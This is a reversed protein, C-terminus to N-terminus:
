SVTVSGFVLTATAASSDAELVFGSLIMVPGVSGSASPQPQTGSPFKTTMTFGSASLTLAATTADEIIAITFPTMPACQHANEITLTSGDTALEVIHNNQSSLDFSAGTSTAGVALGSLTLDNITANLNGGVFNAINSPTANLDNAVTTIAQGTGINNAVTNVDDINDATIKIKSTLPDDLDDAVVTVDLGAGLQDSVKTVALGEGTNNSVNTIAAINTAVTSVKSNSLVLDDGVVTVPQSAGLNQSVTEIKSSTSQLDTSVEIFGADQLVDDRADQVQQLVGSPAEMLRQTASSAIFSAATSFGGSQDSKVIYLDTSSGATVTVLDLANYTTGAAFTGRDNFFGILDIFSAGTDTRYQLKLEGGSQGIQFEPVIAEPAFNGNADFLDGMLQALTRSGIEAAELYADINHSGTKASKFVIQELRPRTQAM